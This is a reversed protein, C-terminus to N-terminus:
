KKLLLHILFILGINSAILAGIPLNNIISFIGYILCALIAGWHFIETM